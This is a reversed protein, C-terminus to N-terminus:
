RTVLPVVAAASSPHPLTRFRYTVGTIRESEAWLLRQRDADRASPSSYAPAPLGTGGFLGDPGYYEGGRVDPDVAARLPALAGAQPGQILWGMLPAAGNSLFARIVPSRTRVLATRAIGPHAAVALTPAGAAALRRHLEYTFLLAALKSTPYPLRARRGGAPGGRTGGTGGAWGGPRGNTRAGATGGAPGNTPGLFGVHRDAAAPPRAARSPLRALDDARLRGCLHALSSVSVVRSGPTALLRDLLLGTLAFHGLHNVGFTPEFGDETRATSPSMVGANAVLLDLRPHDARIRAAAAEVSALSALDLRQVRVDAGPTLSGGLGHSQHDAGVHDTAAGRPAGIATALHADAHTHAARIAAAVREARDVDRSALVVTAGRAALVRTIELGIGSDAGTVVATRGRLDPM